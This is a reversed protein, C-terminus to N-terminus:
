HENRKCVELIRQCRVPSEDDTWIVLSAAKQAAERAEDFRGMILYDDALELYLRCQFHRESNPYRQLSQQLLPVLPLQCGAATCAKHYLELTKLYYRCHDEDIGSNDELLEKCIRRVSAMDHMDYFYQASRFTASLVLDTRDLKGYWSNKYAEVLQLMRRATPGDVPKNQSTDVFELLQSRMRGFDIREFHQPEKTVFSTYCFALVFALTLFLIATGIRRSQVSREHTRTEARNFVFFRISSETAAVPENELQLQDGSLIRELDDKLATASSYREHPDKAMCKALVPQLSAPIESWHETNEVPENVQKFMVFAANDATFPPNGAIMEYLICGAGYIDSRADTPRAMCQEPSAYLVSGVAMGTKTLKQFAEPGILKALGFDILKVPAVDQQSNSSGPLAPPKGAEINLINANPALQSGGSGPKSVIIVNSPKVDRHIIGNTHAHSLGDCIQMAINLAASTELNKNTQLLQQLSQGNLLEIVMYPLDNFIGFAYFQVINPHLLRSLLLGEREFRSKDADDLRDSTMLMKLAVIRDLDKQYAEYVVGMGGAGIVSRIQYKQDIISGVRFLM